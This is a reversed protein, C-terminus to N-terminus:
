EIMLRVPWTTGTFVMPNPVSSTIPTQFFFDDDGVVGTSYFGLPCTTDSNPTGPSRLCFTFRNDCQDNFFIISCPPPTLAGDCCFGDSDTGDDNRYSFAQVEFVYDCSVEIQLLHVNSITYLSLQIDCSHLLM